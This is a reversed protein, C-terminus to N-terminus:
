VVSKRDAVDESYVRQPMNPVTMLHLAAAAADVAILIRQARSSSEKDGPELLRGTGGAVFHQLLRLLRLLDALPVGGGRLAEQLEPRCMRLTEESLRRVDRLLAAAAATGGGSSSPVLEEEGDEEGMLEDEEGEATGNAEEKEEGGDRAAAEKEHKRMFDTIFATYSAAAKGAEQAPTDEATARDAAVTVNALRARKPAPSQDAARRHPPQAGHLPQAPAATVMPMPPHSSGPQHVLPAVKFIGPAAADVQLQLASRPESTAPVTAASGLPRLYSLDVGQLLNLVGSLAAPGAQAAEWEDSRKNPSIPAAPLPFGLYAAPLPHVLSPWRLLPARPQEDGSSTM